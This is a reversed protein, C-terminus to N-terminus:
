KAVSTRGRGGSRAPYLPSSPRLSPSAAPSGEPSEIECLPDFISIVRGTMSQQFKINRDSTLLVDWRSEALTLLEGNKKSGFGAQRATQCEHGLAALKGALAVPLCEDILIKM